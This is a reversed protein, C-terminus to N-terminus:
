AMVTLDYKNFNVSAIKLELRAVGEASQISHARVTTVKEKNEDKDHYYVEYCLMTKEINSEYYDKLQDKWGEKNNRLVKM